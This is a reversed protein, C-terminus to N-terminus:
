AAKAKRREREAKLKAVDESQFECRRPNIPLAGANVYDSLEKNTVGLEAAAERPNLITM